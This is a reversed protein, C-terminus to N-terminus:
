SRCFYLLLLKHLTKSHVSHKLFSVIMYVMPLNYKVQNLVKGLITSLKPFDCCWPLVLIQTVLVVCSYQVATTVTM